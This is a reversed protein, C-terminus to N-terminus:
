GAVFVNSENFRGRVHPVHALAEKHLLAYNGEFFRDLEFNWEEFVEVGKPTVRGIAYPLGQFERYAAHLSAGAFLWRGNYEFQAIAIRGDRFLAMAGRLVDLDHGETDIKLLDLREIGRFAAYAALTEKRVSVKRGIDDGPSLTNTGATAGVIQMAAEGAQSSLALQEVRVRPDGKLAAILQLATEPAPEFATLDIPANPGVARLIERSYLGLNAGVDFATFPRGGGDSKWRAVAAHILDIEGNSRIDNMVEGRASMYLKRGLRWARERGLVRVLVSMASM